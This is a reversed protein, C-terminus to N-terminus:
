YAIYYMTSKMIETAINYYNHPPVLLLLSSRGLVVTTIKGFLYLPLLQLYAIVYSKINLILIIM